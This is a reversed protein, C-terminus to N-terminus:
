KFNFAAKLFKLTQEVILDDSNEPEVGNYIVFRRKYYDCATSYQLMMFCNDLLFAFFAPDIDSRVDGIAQADRVATIYIRSSMAEIRQSLDTLFEANGSTTISCYLKIMEPRRRSFDLLVRIIAEAKLLIDEDTAALELLVDELTSLGEHVAMAFMEDKNEFYKYLSGVSVGSRKAIQLMSAGDFGHNAFEEIIVQLIRERKEASINDFAAKHFRKDKTM